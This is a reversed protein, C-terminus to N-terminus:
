DEQGANGGPAGALREVAAELVDGHLDIDDPEHAPSVLARNHFPFVAVGRNLAFLHLFSSLSRNVIAAGESGNRLRHPSFHYEVRGGIQAVHWRLTRRDIIAELRRRLRAGLDIMRRYAADTLVHELTARMAAMSLANAALTGGVGAMGAHAVDFTQRLREGVPRSMGLAAGAIGSGIPKGLVLMDPELGQARTWGGPGASITHTEDIILLAGARETARRLAAHFGDQPLVVGINTLAPETLVCAVDGHALERVVADIDNFEAVRTTLAPAVPPGISGRRALVEGGAGSAFCEDVTGHYSGEFILVKPRETLHRAYRLAHRNADSASLTFQWHPLGFRRELEGAVALADETPLMFTLGQGARTCIAEVAMAPAHGTMAGTDGLCFDVYENGDVDIVRAGAARDVYVPCTGPWALMWPMPVGLAFAASARRHLEISRPHTANFRRQELRTLAEIRRSDVGPLDLEPRAV